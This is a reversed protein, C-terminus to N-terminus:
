ERSTLIIQGSVGSINLHTLSDPACVRMCEITVSCSLIPALQRVIQYAQTVEYM